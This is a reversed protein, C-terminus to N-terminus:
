QTKLDGHLLRAPIQLAQPAHRAGLHRIPQGPGYARHGLRERLVRQRRAIFIRRVQPEQRREHRQRGVRQHGGRIAHDLTAVLGADQGPRDLLRTDAKVAVVHGLPDLDGPFRTYVYPLAFLTDSYFTGGLSFLRDMVQWLASSPSESQWRRRFAASGKGYDFEVRFTPLMLAELGSSNRHAALGRIKGLLAALGPDRPAEDAPPLKALEEARAVGFATGALLRMMDRRHLAARVGPLPPEMAAM